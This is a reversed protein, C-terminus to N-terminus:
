FYCVFLINLADDRVPRLCAPRGPERGTLLSLESGMGTLVFLRDRIPNIGPGTKQILPDPETKCFGSWFGLKSCVMFEKMGSRNYYDTVKWLKGVIFM